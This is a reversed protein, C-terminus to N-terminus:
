DGSQPETEEDVCRPQLPAPPRGRMGEGQKKSEDSVRGQRSGGPADPAESVDDVPVEDRGEDQAVGRPKHDLEGHAGFDVLAIHHTRSPCTWTLPPARTPSGQCLHPWPWAKPGM